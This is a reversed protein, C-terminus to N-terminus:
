SVLESSRIDLAYSGAALAAAEGSELRFASAGQRAAVPDRPDPPPPAAGHSSHETQTRWCLPKRWPRSLHEAPNNRGITLHGHTNKVCEQALMFATM